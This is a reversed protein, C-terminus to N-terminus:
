GRQAGAAERVVAGEALVGHPDYRGVVSALRALTLEDYARRASAVDSAPAFNPWIGGTDWPALTALLQAAHPGVRPDHAIGVVYVSHRARRHVFASPHDGPRAYAGGLQRVEVMLQPSGAGPGASALLRDVVEDSLETLLMAQDHVPMPDVPDAHVSEVAAYPKQAADDLLVPTVTRVEDLRRAGEDAEGVWVFRVSVVMRGSLVPPVGPLGPPVQVIAVSTTAQEPLEPSWRRWREIVKPADEGAFYLAGGYFTAVPVLDFEIATVIGAIGKGGRLAFFLEPHEEPAARRLVGDGTVVELARVRDCAIGFTRAMPGVGGGTTYGVVGVDGSSGNLPALGHPAAAEIVRRWKVGAGVRAWRAEPHIVLDDLLRTAVLIHGALSSVAGHGTAQVGVTMGRDAAFAVTAGVDAPSRPAVVAAPRMAVAINWPTALAAYEPEDPEAVLGAIRTRLEDLSRDPTKNTPVSTM